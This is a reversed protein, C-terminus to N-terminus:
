AYSIGLHSSNLRTSKRDLQTLETWFCRATRRQSEGLHAKPKESSEQWRSQHLFEADVDSISVAHRQAAPKKRCFTEAILRGPAPQEIPFGKAASRARQQAQHRSGVLTKDN